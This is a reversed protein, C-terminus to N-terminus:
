GGAVAGFVADSRDGLLMQGTPRRVFAAPGLGTAEAARQLAAPAARGGWHGTDLRFELATLAAVIEASTFACHGVRDVFGQRLYQGYGAESVRKGYGMEHQVPVLNDAVTHISLVPISLVGTPVSTDIIADVADADAVVGAADTLRDLDDALDLGAQRYLAAVEPLDVSRMLLERYDVGANWSANGGVATEIDVRAPVVFPLTTVLWEFHNQQMTEWDDRGPPDEGAVRTPLQFLAAALAVRARGEPTAQAAVVADVLQGTSVFADGLGPFDALRIPTDPALLVDIAHAGDLQYNNLALGGGVIGCMPLAGDVISGGALEAIKVTVLGGMSSGYALVRHPQMGIEDIAAALSDLQDQPATPLAWGAAAYSSGVLAYGRELLAAATDPDPSHAPLNPAGIFSPLYGHSYLLLTGNWDEPVEAIWTTGNPLSGEYTGATSTASAAIPSLVAMVLVVVLFALRRVSM